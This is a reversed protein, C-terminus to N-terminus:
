HLRGRLTGHRVKHGLHDENHQQNQERCQHGHWRGPEMSARVASSNSSVEAVAKGGMSCLSECASPPSIRVRSSGCGSTYALTSDSRMNSNKVQRSSVSMSRWCCPRSPMGTRPSRGGIPSANRDLWYAPVRVPSMMRIRGCAMRSLRSTCCTASCIRDCNRSIFGDRFTGSRGASVIISHPMRPTAALWGPWRM